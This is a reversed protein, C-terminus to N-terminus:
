TILPAVTLIELKVMVLPWVEPNLPPPMYLKWDTNVTLLQVTVPLEDLAPPPIMLMAPLEPLALSATTLLMTLPLEASVPPPM